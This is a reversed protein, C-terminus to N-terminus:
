KAPTMAPTAPTVPSAAAASAEAKKRARDQEKEAKKAAIERQREASEAGKRDYSAMNRAETAADISPTLPKAVHPTRVNHPATSAPVTTSRTTDLAGAPSAPPAGSKRIKVSNQENLADREAKERKEELLRDREVVRERRKFANAEIEIPRLMALATHRREKAADLCRTMFFVPRCALEAAHLRNNIETRERTVDALAADAVAVSTISQAPYRQVIAAAGAPMSEASLAAGDPAAQALSTGPAVAMLACLLAAGALLRSISGPRVHPM